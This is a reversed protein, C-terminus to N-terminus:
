LFDFIDIAPIIENGIRLDDSSKVETYIFNNLEEDKEILKLLYNIVENYDSFTKNEAQKIDHVM